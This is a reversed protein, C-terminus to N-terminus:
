SKNNKSNTILYRITLYLVSISVLVSIIGLVSGTKLIINASWNLLILAACELSLVLSTKLNLRKINRMLTYGLISVSILPILIQIILKM